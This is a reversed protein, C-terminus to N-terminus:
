IVGFSGALLAIMWAAVPLLYIAKWLVERISNGHTDAYSKMEAMLELESPNMLKKIERIQHEHMISKSKERYLIGFLSILVGITFYFGGGFSFTKHFPSQLFLALMVLSASTTISVVGISSSERQRLESLWYEFLRQKGDTDKTVSNTLAGQEDSSPQNELPKTEERRMAENITLGLFSFRLEVVGALFLTLTLALLTYYMLQPDLRLPVISSGYVVLDFILVLSAGVWFVWVTSGIKALSVTEDGNLSRPGDSARQSRGQEDRKRRRVGRAVLGLAVALTVVVIILAYGTLQVAEAISLGERAFADFFYSAAAFVILAASIVLTGGGLLELRRSSLELRRTTQLQEGSNRLLNNSGENLRESSAAISSLLMTLYKTRVRDIEVALARFMQLRKDAKPDSLPPQRLPDTVGYENFWKLEEVRRTELSALVSVVGELTDESM